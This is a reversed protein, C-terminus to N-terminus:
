PIIRDWDLHFEWRKIKDDCINSAKKHMM